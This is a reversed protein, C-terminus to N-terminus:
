KAFAATGTTMDVEVTSTPASGQAAPDFTVDWTMPKATSGKASKPVYTIFGMIYAASKGEPHVVVAKDHATNSDIKWADLTPVAAWEAASLGAKGYEQFEGKGGSVSVAYIVDTKPSGILFEWTPTSTPTVAGGVQAVLLKGDPATTSLTSVAIAFTKKATITDAPSSGSGATSSSKGSSSCGALAGVALVLALALGLRVYQATQRSNVLM